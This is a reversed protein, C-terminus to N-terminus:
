DAKRALAPDVGSGKPWRGMWAARAALIAQVLNWTWLVLFVALSIAARTAVEEWSFEQWGTQFHHVIRAVSFSLSVAMVLLLFAKWVMADRLERWAHASVFASFPKAFAWALLPLWIPGVIGLLHVLAGM